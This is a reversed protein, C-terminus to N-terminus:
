RGTIATVLVRGLAQEIRVGEGLGKIAEVGEIEGAERHRDHAIDGARADGAGIDGGHGSPAFTMQTPWRGEGGRRQPDKAALNRVIEVFDDFEHVRHVHEANLEFAM